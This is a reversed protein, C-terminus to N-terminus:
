SKVYKILKSALDSMQYTTMGKSHSHGPLDLWFINGYNKLLAIQHTFFHHNGGANHILVFNHDGNGQIREIFIEIGNITM